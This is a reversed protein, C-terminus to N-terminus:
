SKCGELKSDGETECLEDADEHDEIDPRLGAVVLVQHCVDAQGGDGDEQDAVRRRVIMQCLPFGCTMQEGENGHEGEDGEEEELGQGVDEDPEVDPSLGPEHLVLEDLVQVRGVGAVLLCVDEEVANSGGDDSCNHERFSCWIPFRQVGIHDHTGPCHQGTGGDDEHREVARLVECCSEIEFNGRVYLELNDSYYSNYDVEYKTINPLYIEEVVKKEL